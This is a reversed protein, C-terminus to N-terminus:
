FYTLTLKLEIEICVQAIEFLREEFYRYLQEKRHFEITKGNKLLDREIENIILFTLQQINEEKQSHYINENTLISKDANITNLSNRIIELYNKIDNTLDCSGSHLIFNLKEKLLNNM